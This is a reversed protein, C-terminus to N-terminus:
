NNLQKLKAAVGSLRNVPEGHVVDDKKPPNSKANVDLRSTIQKKLNTVDSVLTELKNQSTALQEKLAENEAKLAAFEEANDVVAVEVIETLVGNEFVHNVDGVLYNGNAPEGAVIAKDGVKPTDGDALEPFEIIVGDADTVTMAIAPKATAKNVISSILTEFWSKDKETMSKDNLNIYACAVMPLANQTSFGLSLCQEPTLWTEKALLPRIAEDTTDTAKKYFDVIKDETKKLEEAYSKIENATGNEITVMPLHIMFQTGPKIVREDGAMFIVTAISAVMSIGITKVPAKLSKLYDHIEFGTDVYGGQSNIYVNYSTAGPQSRVQEIIDILEIGKEGPFKGILGTIHINAEM